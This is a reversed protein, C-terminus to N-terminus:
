WVQSMELVDLAPGFIISRTECSTVGAIGSNSSRCSVVDCCGWCVLAMVTKCLSSMWCPGFARSARVLHDLMGAAPDDLSTSTPELTTELSQLSEPRAPLHMLELWPSHPLEMRPLELLESWAPSDLSKIAGPSKTLVTTGSPELLCLLDTKCSCTDMNVLPLNDGMAQVQCIKDIPIFVLEPTAKFAQIGLQPM